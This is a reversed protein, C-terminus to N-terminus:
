HRLSLGFQQLLTPFVAQDRPLRVLVRGVGQVVAVDAFMRELMQYPASAAADDTAVLDYITACDQGDTPAAPKSRPLSLWGVCAIGRGGNPVMYCREGHELRRVADSLFEQRRRRTLVWGFEVIHQMQDVLVEGDARATTQPVPGEYLAERGKGFRTVATRLSEQVDRWRSKVESVSISALALVGRIKAKAASLQREREAHQKSRHMVLEMVERQSTAFRAKWSDGGPTLDITAAGDAALLLASEYMNLKNPSHEAVRPDHATIALHLDERSRVFIIAAAIRGDLLAVGIRLHESCTRLWDIHFARKVPDDEFPCVGNLSGQRLDYMGIIQDLDAAVTSADRLCFELKGLKQLRHMKSRNGKKRLVRQIAQQDIKLEHCLHRHLTVRRNTLPLDDLVSPPTLYPLYRLCLQHAPFLSAVTDLARALFEGADSERSIWGQYEGQHAGVGVIRDGRVALPMIGAVIRDSRRAVLLLPSWTRSYHRSWVAFFAQSQFATAWPCEEFLINWQRRNSACAAWDCALAGQLVEIQMSDRQGPSVAGDQELPSIHEIATVGLAGHWPASYSESTPGNNSGM